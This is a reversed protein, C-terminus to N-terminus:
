FCVSHSVILLYCCSAV